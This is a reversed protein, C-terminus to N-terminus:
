QNGGQYQIASLERKINNYLMCMGMSVIAVIGLENYYYLTTSEIYLPTSTIVCVYPQRYNKRINLQKAEIM